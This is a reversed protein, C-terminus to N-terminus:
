KQSENTKTDQKQNAISKNASRTRTRKYEKQTQIPSTEPTTIFDLLPIICDIVYEEEYNEIPERKSIANKSLYDVLAMSKGAILEINIDFHALRDLWRILSASYTTNSHNRKISPELAQHDTLLEIPEGYKHLRFNELGWVVALLELEIIADKKDTDSM